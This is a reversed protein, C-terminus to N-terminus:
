SFPMIRDIAPEVPWEIVKTHRGEWCVSQGVITATYGHMERRKGGVEEEGQGM